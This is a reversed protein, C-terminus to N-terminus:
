DSQAHVAAAGSLEHFFLGMVSLCFAGSQAQHLGIDCSFEEFGNTLRITSGTGCLRSLWIGPEAELLNVVIGPRALVLRQTRIMPVLCKSGDGVTLVTTLSARTLGFLQKTDLHFVRAGHERALSVM